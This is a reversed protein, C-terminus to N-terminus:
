EIIELAIQMYTSGVAALPRYKRVFASAYDGFAHFEHNFTSFEDFIILTGPQIIKDLMSLVYLTSSYLDADCHVVLRNKPAFEDLFKSLTEQFFGPVLRTRPDSIQPLIGGTDCTGKPRCGSFPLDWDEPLGEFCDFGIFRSSDNKNLELWYKLSAGKAVGFELYDIPVDELITNNIYEYLIKRDNNSVIQVKNKRVWHAYKSAGIAYEISKPPLPMYSAFKLAYETWRKM